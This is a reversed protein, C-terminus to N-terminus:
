SVPISKKKMSCVDLVFLLHQDPQSIHRVVSEYLDGTWRMFTIEIWEPIGRRFCCFFLQLIQIAYQYGPVATTSYFPLCLDLRLTFLIVLFTRPNFSTILLFSHPFSSGTIRNHFILVIVSLPPVIRKPEHFHSRASPVNLVHFKRHWDFGDTRRKSGVV